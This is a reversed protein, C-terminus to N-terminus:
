LAEFLHVGGLEVPKGVRSLCFHTWGLLTGEVFVRHVSFLKGLPWELESERADQCTAEHAASHWVLFPCFWHSSPVRSRVCVFDCVCVCWVVVHGSLLNPPQGSAAHLTPDM